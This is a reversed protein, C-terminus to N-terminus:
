PPPSHLSQNRVLNGSATPMRPQARQPGARVSPTARPTQLRPPAGSLWHWGKLALCRSCLPALAGARAAQHRHSCRRAPWGPWRQSCCHARLPPQSRPPLRPAVWGVRRVGATNGCTGDDPPSRRSSPLRPSAPSVHARRPLRPRQQQPWRRARGAPCAQPPRRPWPRPPQVAASLAGRPPPRPARGAPARSLGAHPAPPAQPPPAM